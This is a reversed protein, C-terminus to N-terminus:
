DWDLNYNIQEAEEDIEEKVSSKLETDIIKNCVTGDVIAEVNACITNFKNKSRQIIANKGKRSESEGMKLKLEKLINVTVDGELYIDVTMDQTQANLGFTIKYLYEKIPKDFNDICVSLNENCGIAGNFKTCNSDTECTAFVTSREGEVHAAIPALIKGYSQYPTILVGESNDRPVYKHCYLEEANGSLAQGWPHSNLWNQLKDFAKFKVNINFYSFLSNAATASTVADNWAKGVTEYRRQPVYIQEYAAQCIKKEVSGECKINGDEDREVEGSAGAKLVVLKTSTVKGEKNKIEAYGSVKITNYYIDQIRYSEEIKKSFSEEDLGKVKKEDELKKYEEWTVERFETRTKGDTGKIHVAVNQSVKHTQTLKNNGEGSTKVYRKLSRTYKGTETKKDTEMEARVKYVKEVKKDDETYTEKTWSDAFKPKAFNKRTHVIEDELDYVTRYTPEEKTGTIISLQNKSQEITGGAPIEPFGIQSLLNSDIDSIYGYEGDAQKYYIYGEEKPKFTKDTVIGMYEEPNNPNITYLVKNENVIQYLKGDKNIQLSKVKANILHALYNPVRTNGIYADSYTIDGDKETTRYHVIIKKKDVMTEKKYNYVETGEESQVVTKTYGSETVRFIEKDKVKIAEENEEMVYTHKETGVMYSYGTGEEKFTEINSGIKKIIEKGVGIAITKGGIIIDTTEGKTATMKSYDKNSTPKYITGDKSTFTDDTNIKLTNKDATFTKTNPDYKATAIKKGAKDAIGLNIAVSLPASVTYLKDTTSALRYSYTFIDKEIDSQKSATDDIVDITPEATKAPPTTTTGTTQANVVMSVMLLLMILVIVKNKNM